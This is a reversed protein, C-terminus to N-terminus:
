LGIYKRIRPGIVNAISVPLKEWFHIAKAFRKKESIQTDIPQGNLSICHWHLVEPKSGWRKKFTYTGGGLSSRGFDFYKFGHKCALELMTWYLLINPNHKKYKRLSSTWPNLLMDRFGIVVSAAIVRKGRFIACISTEDTFEKLVNEILRKSHVPSGLDRMNTSFVKYFHDLLELKGVVATCGEKTAKRIKNRMRPRFSKMLIETDGPIPLLMRAKKVKTIYPVKKTPDNLEPIDYTNYPTLSETKNLCSLPKIQRLEIRSVGLKKGLKISNTLLAREIHESGALIGGNDLFPMSILSNGFIFHKIHMLPLIGQICDNRKFNSVVSIDFREGQKDESMNDNRGNEIALLYYSKHGYTKKIIKEWCSLHYITGKPHNRVYSDWMLKKDETLETIIM